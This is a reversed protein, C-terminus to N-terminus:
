AGLAEKVSLEVLKKLVAVKYESPGQRDSKPSIGSVAEEAVEKIIAESPRAGIAREPALYKFGMIAEGAVVLRLDIIKGSDVKAMAGSIGVYHDLNRIFHKKYSWRYGDLEKYRVRVIVEGPKLGTRHPGHIFGRIKEEHFRHQGYILLSADALMLPVPLENSPDALAINGGLSGMTRIAPDAIGSSVFRIMDSVPGNVSLRQLQYIKLAAGLDVIGEGQKAGQAEEVESIDVVLKPRVIREKLLRVGVTGGSILFAGDRVAEDLEALNKPKLYEFGVPILM